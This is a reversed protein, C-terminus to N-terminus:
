GLQKEPATQRDYWGPDAGMLMFGRSIAARDAEGSERFEKWFAHEREENVQELRQVEKWLRDDKIDFYIMVRCDYFNGSKEVMAYDLEDMEQQSKALRWKPDELEEARGFKGSRYLNVHWYVKVGARILEDVSVDTWFQYLGGSYKRELCFKCRSM